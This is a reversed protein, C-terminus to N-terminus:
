DNIEYGLNNLEDRIKDSLDYQKEDRLKKRTDALIDLLAEENSGDNNSNGDDKLFIIGLIDNVTSLFGKIALVDNIDLNNLESKSDSILKFIAAIAKPTNFDDDMANFFSVIATKLTDYQTAELSDIQDEITDEDGFENLLIDDVDNIYSKIKNLSKDAQHLSDVSFDIPSRYHTSLVFFRFTEPSIEKLLDKITIFNGLSKSMKEGNVNLFGTHFWYNVMPKKGSLAEM